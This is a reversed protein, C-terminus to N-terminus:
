RFKVHRLIADGRAVHVFREAGDHMVVVDGLHRGLEAHRGPGQVVLGVQVFRRRVLRRQAIRHQHLHDCGVGADHLGHGVGQATTNTL